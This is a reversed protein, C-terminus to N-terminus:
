IQTTQSIQSIGHPWYIPPPSYTPYTLAIRGQRLERRFHRIGGARFWDDAWLTRARERTVIWVGAQRMLKKYERYHGVGCIGSETIAKESLSDVFSCKIAFNCLARNWDAKITETNPNVPAIGSTTFEHVSVLKLPKDTQHDHALYGFVVGTGFAALLEIV